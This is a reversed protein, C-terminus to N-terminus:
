IFYTSANLYHMSNGWILMPLFRNEFALM